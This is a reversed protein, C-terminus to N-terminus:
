FLFLLLITHVLEFHMTGWVVSLSFKMLLSCHLEAADRVVPFVFKQCRQGRWSGQISKKSGVADSVDLEVEGSPSDDALYRRLMQEVEQSGRNASVCVCARM